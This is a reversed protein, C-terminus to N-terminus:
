SVFNRAQDVLISVEMLVPRGRCFDIWFFDLQLKARLNVASVGHADTGRMEIGVLIAEVFIAFVEHFYNQAESVFVLQRNKM